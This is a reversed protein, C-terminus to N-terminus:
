NAPDGAAIRIEEPARIIATGAKGGHVMVTMAQFVFNGYM